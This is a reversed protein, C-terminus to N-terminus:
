ISIRGSDRKFESGLDQITQNIFFQKLESRLATVSDHLGCPKEDSCKATRILCSEFIDTGDILEVIEMLSIDEANRLLNFGGHPGKTSNLIKKKALSQLIKSLFPSPIDLKEAIEKIGIKKERNSYVSIYVVARIAYKCTNSLM